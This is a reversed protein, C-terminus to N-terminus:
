THVIEFNAIKLKPSVNGCESKPEFRFLSFCLANRFCLVLECCNTHVCTFRVDCKMKYGTKRRMDCLTVSFFICVRGRGGRKGGGNIESKVCMWACRTIHTYSTRAYPFKMRTLCVYEFMDRSINLVPITQRFHVIEVCKLLVVYSIM